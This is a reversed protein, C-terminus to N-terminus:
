KGVNNEMSTGSRSSLSLEVGKGHYSDTRDPPPFTSAHNVSQLDDNQRSKKTTDSIQDDATGLMRFLSAQIERQREATMGIEEQTSQRSPPASLKVQNNDRKSIISGRTRTPHLWPPAM